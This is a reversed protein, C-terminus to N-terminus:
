GFRRGADFALGLGVSSMKNEDSIKANPFLGCLTKRVFPIEAGGGTLIVLEIGSSQVGSADLCEQLVNAIKEVEASISQQFEEREALVQFQPTIFDFDTCTSNNASLSIKAGEIQALIKHGLQRQLVQSLRGLKEPCHAGPLLSQVANMVKYEYLSNIRSWESLEFYYGIPVPLIKPPVGYETGMGFEPMFQALSFQKDFDNGGIRVGANALIDESRDARVRGVGGLRIISFDSTGGGIDIVAALTETQLNREHAFAAAIPEYQFQVDRFGASQIIDRLESEAAVDANQDSQFHVPRGMVVSKIETGAAADLKTKVSKIFDQILTEFKVPHGNIFTGTKMLNTGLVRKLSRMLRGEDGDLYKEIAPTGFTKKHTKEDVFIASPITFDSNELPVLRPPAADTNMDGCVIAAATNTTGFDIGAFNQM